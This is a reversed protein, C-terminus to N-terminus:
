ALKCPDNFRDPTVIETGTKGIIRLDCPGYRRWRRVDANFKPTRVGKVDEAWAIGALGFVLFDCVYVSDPDGLFFRTQRTWGRILSSRLMVDLEGARKAEAKSDYRVGNYITPTNRYKRKAAREADVRKANKHLIAFIRAEEEKSVVIGM